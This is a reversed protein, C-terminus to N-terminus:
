ISVIAKMFGAPKDQLDQFANDLQELTYRHTILSEMDLRGAALLDLGRRMCDMQYDVRREHANIVTLAKWNWLEVDVSRPGKQHYGVISLVGHTDVMEGALTLGAQSGTAEVAIDVGYGKGQDDWETLKLSDPVESPHLVEDAGLKLALDRAEKRLDIAILKACGKLRICQLMLMGMFGLGVIAVTDGLEIETRRAGSIICSLPEGLAQEYPIGDPIQIVQNQPTIAYEAFAHYILGTVRMGPKLGEVMSGVKAIDGVIEHGIKAPYKGNGQWVALESACVGCAKVKILVDNPGVEPIPMDMIKSKRPGVLVSQKM